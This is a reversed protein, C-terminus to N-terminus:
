PQLALEYELIDAPVGDPIETKSPPEEKAYRDAVSAPNRLADLQEEQVPRAYKSLVKHVYRNTREAVAIRAEFQLPDGLTIVKVTDISRLKIRTSLNAKEGKHYALAIQGIGGHSTAYLGDPRGEGAFVAKTSEGDYLTIQLVLPDNVNLLQDISHELQSRMQKARKGSLATSVLQYLDIVKQVTQAYAQAKDALTLQHEKM